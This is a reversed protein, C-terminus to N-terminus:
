MKMTVTYREGNFNLKTGDESGPFEINDTIIIDFNTENINCASFNENCGQVYRGSDPGVISNNDDAICSQGSFSFVDCYLVDKKVVLMPPEQKKKDKPPYYYEEYVYEDHDDEYYVDNVKGYRYEYEQANAITTAPILLMIIGFLLAGFVGIKTKSM